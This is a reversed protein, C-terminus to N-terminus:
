AGASKDSVWVAVGCGTCSPLLIVKVMLNFLLLWDVNEPTTTVFWNGDPKINTEAIEVAPAQTWFLPRTVQMIPVTVLLTLAMIVIVAVAVLTVVIVLEAVTVAMSVSGFMALLVAMVVVGSFTSQGNNNFKITFVVNSGLTVPQPAATQTLSLDAPAAFKSIFGDYSVGTYSGQQVGATIPFNTSSDTLGGIYINRNTDLAICTSFDDGTGGFFTSFIIGASGPVVPNLKAVFADSPGGAFNTQDTGANPFDESLTAGSIYVYGSSDVAVGYATDQDEGGLFTSYLLSSGNTTLKTVFVDCNFSDVGGGKVTQQANTNYFNASYTCGVIYVGTSDVTIGYGTDNETGGLYTSFMLTTGAASVKAVFADSSGGGFTSQFPSVLPFNLAIGPDSYTQIEGTLYANASSDLAIATAREDPDNGLVSAYVLSSAGSSAPNFKAIFADLYNGNSGTGGPFSNKAPFFTEADTEGAIYANGSADVAIANAYDYTGAGFYSSYLLTTGTSNLKFIFADFEGGGFTAYQNVVPFNNSTTGGTVYVNNTSDLAIGTGYDDGKSGVYTSFIRATGAANIKTVFVDNLGSNTIRYSGAVTPFNLSETEGTVYVNGSSDVAISRVADALSGGLYTSYVLTPDIILPKSADYEGTQFGIESKKLIYDCTVSKRAGNIEQYAIPKHWLIEREGLRLRLDGDSTINVEDAGTFHLGINKPAAGPNVIFDYELQQQNGYYILDIGPYVEDYQIRASEGINSIWEKPDSGLFYNASSGMAGLGHINPNPNAGILAMRLVSGTGKEKLQKRKHSGTSESRRLTFVAETPTLFLTYGLGRSLFKVKSDVQGQNAEFSMPYNAHSRIVAVQDLPQPNNAAVSSSFLGLLITAFALPFGARVLFSIIM